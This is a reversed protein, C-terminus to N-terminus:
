RAPYNSALRTLNKYTWTRASAGSTADLSLPINEGDSLTAYTIIFDTNGGLGYGVLRLRSIDAKQGEYLGSQRYQCTLESNINMTYGRTNGSATFRSSNSGDCKPDTLAQDFAAAIEAPNLFTSGLNLGAIGLRTVLFGNIKIDMPCLLRGKAPRYTITQTGSTTTLEASFTGVPCGSNSVQDQFLSSTGAAIPGTSAIHYPADTALGRVSAQPQNIASQQACGAMLPGAAVLALITPTTGLVSLCRWTIHLPQRIIAHLFV